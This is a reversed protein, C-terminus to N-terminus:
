EHAIVNTNYLIAATSMALFLEFGSQKEYGSANSPNYQDRALAKQLQVVRPNITKLGLAKNLMAQPLVGPVRFVHPKKPWRGYEDQVPISQNHGKALSIRKTHTELPTAWITSVKSAYRRSGYPSNSSDCRFRIARAM